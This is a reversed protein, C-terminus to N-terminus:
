YVKLPRQSINQEISPTSLEKKYFSLREKVGQLRIYIKGGKAIPNYDEYFKNDVQNKEKLMDGLNQDKIMRIKVLDGFVSRKQMKEEPAPKIFRNFIDAYKPRSRPELQNTFKMNEFSYAVAVIENLEKKNKIGLTKLSDELVMSKFPNTRKDAKKIFLEATRYIRANYDSLASYDRGFTYTISEPINTILDKPEAFLLKQSIGEKGKLINKLDYDIKKTLDDVAVYAEREETIVDKRKIGKKHQELLFSVYNSFSNFADSYSPTKTTRKVEIIYKIDGINLDVKTNKKPRNDDNYGSTSIASEKFFDMIKKSLIKKDYEWMLYKWFNKETIGELKSPMPIEYDVIVEAM